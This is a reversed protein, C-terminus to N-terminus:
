ASISFIHLANQTTQEAVETITCNKAKAVTAAIIPIYGPENRRGRYPEPALYPSDTELVIHELPIQTVADRLYQSKKFTIVGGIGIMFGAQIVRQAQELNGTFCHMIGKLSGDQVYEICEMVQDFSERCHVSVPLNLTKAWKLQQIFAEKQLSFTTKDWYLDIGIEGVAVYRCPKEFLLKEVKEMETLYTDSQVHCPHLGMMAFCHQPYEAILTHLAPATTSDLNPIFFYKVDTSIAKQLVASRDSDFQEAYLHAHTDAFTIPM